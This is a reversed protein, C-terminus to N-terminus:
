RASAQFWGHFEGFEGVKHQQGGLPDLVGARTASLRWARMRHSRLHSNRWGAPVTNMSSATVHM